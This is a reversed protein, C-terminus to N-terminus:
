KQGPTEPPTQPDQPTESQVPQVPQPAYMQQPAGYGQVYGPQGVQQGYGPQVPQQEYGQGYGPQVPQAPQQGYGQVYGPQAYAQAYAANTNKRVRNIYVAAVVLLVATILRGMLFAGIAGVISWVFAGSLKDPKNYNRIGLISAVMTIISCLLGWGIAVWGVILISNWIPLLDQVTLGSLALDSTFDPDNELQAILVSYFEPDNSVGQILAMCIFGILCALISLSSLVVVAVSLGRVLRADSNQM